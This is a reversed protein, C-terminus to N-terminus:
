AFLDAQPPAILDTQAPAAGLFKAKKGKKKTGKEHLGAKLEEAYRHHNLALLRDLVTRRATESLTYREGQKTPHFGHGLDLDSWGYAAAVAQDMEEHLARLRAIDESQERRDHFRNYTKTLGEDNRVMLAARFDYYGRGVAELAPNSQWDEPFAFTEFCDTSTYRVDQRM